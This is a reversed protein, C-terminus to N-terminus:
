IKEVMARLAPTSNHYHRSPTEEEVAAEAIPSLCCIILLIFILAAHGTMSVIISAPVTQTIM